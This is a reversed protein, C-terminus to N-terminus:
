KRILSRLVYQSLTVKQGDTVQVTVGAACCRTKFPYRFYVNVQHTGPALPVFRSRWSGSQAKGDVELTLRVFSRDAM